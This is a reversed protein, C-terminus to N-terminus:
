ATIDPRSGSRPVVRGTSRVRQIGIAAVGALTWLVLLPLLSARGALGSVEGLNFADRDHGPFIVASGIVGEELAAKDSVIDRVFRPLVLRSIPSLNADDPDRMDRAEPLEPFVSTTVVSIGVSVGALVVAGALVAPRVASKMRVVADFTAGLGLAAFPLVPVMHRPGFAAGGDWMAYSAVVLYGLVTVATAVIGEARSDESRLLVVFGPLALTLVPFLTFLGRYEGFLVGSLGEPTPITIGFFGTEQVARFAPTAINSYGIRFVSGFCVHNYVALLAVPPVAAVVFPIMRKPGVRIVGYVTIALVAISSPYESIVSWGCAFGAAALFVLRRRPAIEHRRAVALVLAFACALLGAVFQHSVYLTSYALANTGIQWAVVAALAASTRVFLRRLSLFVAMSALASTFGVLLVTLLYLSTRNSSRKVQEVHRIKTWVWYPPISAFSLGPAKDSFTRGGFAAKDFTNNAYRDISFTGLEVVSRVLDFRSNQNPGPGQVFYAFTVWSVVFLLWSLRRERASAAVFGAGPLTAGDPHPVTLEATKAKTDPATM